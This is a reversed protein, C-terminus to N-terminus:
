EHCHVESHLLKAKHGLAASLHDLSWQVYRATMVYTLKAQGVTPLM